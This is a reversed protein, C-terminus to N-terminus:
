RNFLKKITTIITDIMSKKPPLVAPAKPSKLDQKAMERKAQEDLVRLDLTPPEKNQRPIYEVSSPIKAYEKARQDIDDM